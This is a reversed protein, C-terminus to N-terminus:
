ETDPQRKYKCKHKMLMEPEEYEAGVMGFDTDPAVGTVDAFYHNHGDDVSTEGEVYHIHTGNPMRQATGTCRDVWHWHGENEEATYSTRVWIRHVHSRGEAQPPGSVGLVMHQHADEVDVQTSFTHVHRRSDQNCNPNAPKREEEATM